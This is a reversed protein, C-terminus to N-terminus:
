GWHQGRHERRELWHYFRAVSHVVATIFTFGILAWVYINDGYKIYLIAILVCIVILVNSYNEYKHEKQGSTAM